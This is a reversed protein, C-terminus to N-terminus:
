PTKPFDAQNTWKFGKQEDWTFDCEFPGKIQQGSRANNDWKILIDQFECACLIAKHCKDSFYDDRKKDKKNEMDERNIYSPHYILLVLCSYKKNDEGIWDMITFPVTIKEITNNIQWSIRIRPFNNKAKGIIARRFLVKGKNNSIWIKEGPELGYQWIVSIEVGWTIIIDPKNAKVMDVFNNIGHIQEQSCINPNKDMYQKNPVDGEYPLSIQFFNAFILYKWIDKGRKKCFVKQFIQHSIPNWLGIVRRTYEKCYNLKGCNCSGNHMNCIQNNNPYLKNNELICNKVKKPDDCYHNCGLVIIKKGEGINQAPELEKNKLLWGNIYKKGIWPEFFKSM